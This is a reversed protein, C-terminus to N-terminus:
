NRRFLGTLARLPGTLRWSWSSQFDRRVLERQQELVPELGATLAEVEAQLRTVLNELRGLEAHPTRLARALRDQAVDWKKEARVPWQHWQSQMNDIDLQNVVVDLAGVVFNISLQDRRSYRLIHDYWLQMVHTVQTTHRRAVLATWYPHEELASPRLAAYQILQEYVRSPDDYGDAVVADFEGMVTGRYSHRPIAIDASSLWSDLLADPTAQLIVSNDIWLSEDYESLLETGRVKLYRASRVTDMPFRLDIQRITWTESTLEPDDTFCIFDVGTDRAMPQENLKEYRGTLASYVVRKPASTVDDDERNM